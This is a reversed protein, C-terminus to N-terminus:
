SEVNELVGVYGKGAFELVKDTFGWYMANTIIKRFLKGDYTGQGLINEIRSHPLLCLDTKDWRVAECDIWREKIITPIPQQLVEEEFYGDTNPIEIDLRGLCVVGRSYKLWLGDNNVTWGSCGAPLHDVSFVGTIDLQNNSRVIMSPHLASIVNPEFFYGPFDPTVYPRLEKLRTLLYEAGEKTYTHPVELIEDPLMEPIRIEQKADAFIIHNAEKFVNFGENMKSIAEFILKSDGAFTHNAFSPAFEQYLVGNNQSQFIGDQVTLVSTKKMQTQLKM